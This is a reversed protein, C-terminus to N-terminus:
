MGRDKEFQSPIPFFSEYFDRIVYEHATTKMQIDDNICVFKSKRKRVSDLQRKTEAFDDKIMQFAVYEDSGMTMKQEFPFAIELEKAAKECGMVDEFRIAINTFTHQQISGEADRFARQHDTWNGKLCQLLLRRTDYSARVGYVIQNLSEFERDNLIGDGDTDIWSFVEKLHDTKRLMEKHYLYHFYLFAYQLDTGERFRHHITENVLDHLREEIEAM